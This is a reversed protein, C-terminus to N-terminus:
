HMLVRNAIGIGYEKYQMFEFDHVALIDSLRNADCTTVVRTM